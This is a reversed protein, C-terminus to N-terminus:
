HSANYESLINAMNDMLEEIAEKETGHYYDTTVYCRADWHGTERDFDLFIEGDEYVIVKSTTFEIM